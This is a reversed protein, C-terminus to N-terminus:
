IAEPALLGEPHSFRETKEWTGEDKTLRAPPKPANSRQIKALTGPRQLDSKKYFLHNM